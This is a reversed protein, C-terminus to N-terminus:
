ITLVSSIKLLNNTHSCGPLILNCVLTSKHWCKTEQIVSMKVHHLPLMRCGQWMRGEKCASKKHSLSFVSVVFVLGLVNIWYCHLTLYRLPDAQPGNLIRSIQIHKSSCCYCINNIITFLIWICRLNRIYFLNICFKVLLTENRSVPSAFSWLSLSFHRRSILPSFYSDIPTKSYTM